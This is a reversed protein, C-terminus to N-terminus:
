RFRNYKQFFFDFDLTIKCSIEIFTTFMEREFIERIKTKTSIVVPAFRSFTTFIYRQVIDNERSKEDSM